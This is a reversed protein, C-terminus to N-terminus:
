TGSADESGNSEIGCWSIDACASVNWLFQPPRRSRRAGIIRCRFSSAGILWFIDAKGSSASRALSFGSMALGIAAGVGDYKHRPIQEIDEPM